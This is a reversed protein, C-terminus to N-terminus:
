PVVVLKTMHLDLHVNCVITYEGPDLKFVITQYTPGSGGPTGSVIESARLNKGTPNRYVVANHKFPEPNQNDYNLTITGAKAYITSYGFDLDPAPIEQGQNNIVLGKSRINIVSFPNAKSGLQAPNVPPFGAECNVSFQAVPIQNAKASQTWVAALPVCGKASNVSM